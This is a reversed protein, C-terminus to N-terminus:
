TEGFVGNPQADIIEGFWPGLSDLVPFPLGVTSFLLQFKRQSRDFRRISASNKGLHESIMRDWIIATARPDIQDRLRTRSFVEILQELSDQTPLEIVRGNKLRKYRHVFGRPQAFHCRLLIACLNTREKRM